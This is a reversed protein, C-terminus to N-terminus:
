GQKMREETQKIIPAGEKELRAATDKLAQEVPDSKVVFRQVGDGIIQDGNPINVRAWDQPRTVALQDVATKFNPHEKYFAQQKPDDTASKRVPMYGTSQSWTITGQTGTAFAVYDFAAAQKPQPSGRMVCLGAGGTSVGGAKEKPLFATGVKFKANKEIGALAATSLLGTVGLGNQFDVAVDQPNAAWNYKHVWDSWVQGAAIAPADAIHIKFQEDSISGGYEWVFPMFVWAIYSNGNSMLFPYQSVDNGNKKLLKPAYSMWETWTTPAKDQGAEMYADKNYYFLQTSRAFPPWYQKGNRVGEGWLADVYDTPDVKARQFFDNVPAITNNLWFKGWWVDSLVVLDPAQKAALATALKQATDGYSGQYQYDVTVAQQSSNFQKVLAQVANGNTGSFADWYLVSEAGGAKAATSPAAAAAATTPAVAAATAPTAAAAAPAATTPATAPATTAGPKAAPTSATPAATTPASTSGSGGCAALLTVMAAQGAAGILFSRRSIGSRM